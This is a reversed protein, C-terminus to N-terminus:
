GAVAGTAVTEKRAMALLYTLAAKGKETISYADAKGGRLPNPNKVREVQVAKRKLLRRTTQYINVTRQSRKTPMYRGALATSIEAITMAVPCESLVQLM